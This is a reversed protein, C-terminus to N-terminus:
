AARKEDKLEGATYDGPRAVVKLRRSRSYGEVFPNSRPESPNFTIERGARGGYFRDEFFDFLKTVLNTAPGERRHRNAQM